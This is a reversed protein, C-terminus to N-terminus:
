SRVTGPQARKKHSATIYQAFHSSCDGSIGWIAARQKFRVCGIKSDWDSGECKKLPIQSGCLSKGEM